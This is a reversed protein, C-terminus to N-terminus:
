PAPIVKFPEEPHFPNDFDRSSGDRLYVTMTPSTLMEVIEASDVQTPDFYIHAIPRDTYLTEFRVIGDNGSLHSIYYSLNRKYSSNEAEPLGIELVKLESLEYTEYNNFTQKVAPFFELVFDRFSIPDLLKEGEATEFEVYVTEEKGEKVMIYEGGNITKLIDDVSELNQDFYIDVMVPEGFETKFAFVGKHKALMRYLDYNDYGDFLEYVGVQLIDVQDISPEPSHIKYKSPSFVARMVGSEDLVDGNYFIIVRHESAYADLGIIGPKRMLKGQLSKASGYCKISRLDELEVSQVNEVNRYDGWRESITAIEYNSAFILALVFLVAIIVPPIWTKNWKWFHIAGKTPCTKVCDMCLTCDPHDVTKYNHVEIGQPCKQDCLACSTCQSENVKIRFPTLGFFKYRFIETAAGSLALAGLLWAVHLDVGAWRLILYVVLIPASVLVNAAINSVASLPCLYKCWFYRVFVSVVLVIFLASLSWWLVTDVDFGSTVGYYPDFKKCFLESSTISFYATFYLIFYKLVRLARDPWGKLTITKLGIKAALKRLHEIVTGIPCIYGCFLKGFLIIGVVLAVGMFLQTASMSCSLSGLWAKSGLTMLGGFPCYAEFDVVFDKKFLPILMFLVILGLITLQITQKLRNNYQKAM